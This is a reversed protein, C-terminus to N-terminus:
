GNFQKLFQKLQEVDFNALVKGDVVITPVYRQGSLRQMEEFASPNRGVDVEEFTLGHQKLYDKAEICWGCLARSYLKINRMIKAQSYNTLMAFQVRFDVLSDQSVMM